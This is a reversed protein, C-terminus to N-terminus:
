LQLKAKKTFDEIASEFNQHNGLLISNGQFTLAWTRECLCIGSEM